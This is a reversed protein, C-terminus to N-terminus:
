SDGMTINSKFPIEIADRYVVVKEQVEESFFKGNEWFWRWEEGDQDTVNVFSGDEVVPAIAAFLQEEQGMKKDENKSDLSVCVFREEVFHRGAYAYLDYGWCDFFGDLDKQQITARTNETDVFSYHFSVQIGNVWEGGRGIENIVDDSMLETVIDWFKDLNEIRIKFSNKGITIYNGM